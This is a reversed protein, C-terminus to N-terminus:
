WHLTCRLGARGPSTAAKMEALRREMHMNTCKIRARLECVLLRLRLQAGWESGM